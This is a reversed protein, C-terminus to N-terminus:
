KEIIYTNIKDFPPYPKVMGNSWKEESKFNPKFKSYDCNSDVIKGIPVPLCMELELGSEKIWDMYISDSYIKKHTGDYYVKLGGNIGDVNCIDYEYSSDYQIFAFEYDKGKIHKGLFVDYDYYNDPFSKILDKYSIRLADIGKQTHTQDFNDWDLELYTGTGPTNINLSNARDSKFFSEYRHVWMNINHIATYFKDPDIVKFEEEKIFDRLRYPEQYHIKKFDILEENSIGHEWNTLTTASTTFCRHILNTDKWSMGTFGEYPFTKGEISSNASNIALNLQEICYEKNHGYIPHNVTTIEHAHVFTSGNEPKLDYLGLSRNRHYANIWKSVAPTPLLEITTSCGNFELILYSTKV